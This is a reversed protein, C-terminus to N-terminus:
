RFRAAFIRPTDEKFGSWELNQLPKCTSLDWLQLPDKQNHSGTLVTGNKYDIADGSIHPGMLHKVSKGERIDWIHVVSDWGGSILM